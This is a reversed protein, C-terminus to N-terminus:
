RIILYYQQRIFDKMSETTDTTLLPAKSTVADITSNDNSDFDIKDTSLTPKNDITSASTETLTGNYLSSSNEESAGAQECSINM